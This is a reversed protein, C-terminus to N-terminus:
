WPENWSKAVEIADKKRQCPMFTTWTKTEKNWIGWSTPNNFKGYTYPNAVYKSMRMEGM